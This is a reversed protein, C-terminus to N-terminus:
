RRYMRELEEIEKNIQKVGVIENEKIWSRVPFIGFRRHDWRVLFQFGPYQYHGIQYGVGIYHDIEEVTAWHHISKHWIWITGTGILLRDGRKIQSAKIPESM